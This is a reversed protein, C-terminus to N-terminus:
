DMRVAQSPIIIANAETSLILKVQVMQAPWLLHPQNAVRGKLLITGTQANVTNDVFVIDGTALLKNGTETWVEVVIKNKHRYSFLAPLDKQALNFDVLVPNLQNVTVLATTDTASVLSGEKLTVDGT